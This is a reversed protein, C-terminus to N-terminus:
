SFGVICKLDDYVVILHSKDCPHLNKLIQLNFMIICWILLSFVM